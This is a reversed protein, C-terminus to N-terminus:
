IKFILCSLITAQDFKNVSGSSDFKLELIGADMEKVTLSNGQFVM